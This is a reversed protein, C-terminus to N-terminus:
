VFPSPASCRKYIIAGLTKCVWIMNNM